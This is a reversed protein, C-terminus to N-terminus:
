MKENLIREKFKTLLEFLEKSINEMEKLKELNNNKNFSVEKIKEHFRDHVRELTGWEPVKKYKNNNDEYFKSFSCKNDYNFKYNENLSKKYIKIKTLLHELKTLELNIGTSVNNTNEMSININNIMNNLESIFLLLVSNTENLENNIEKTNEINEEMNQSLANISVEIEATAKQTKEALKRVEDAVVAFGRGHEGARAAEIAANLALLNTQESIDKILNTVSKIDNSSELLSESSEVTEDVRTLLSEMKEQVKTTDEVVKNIKEKNNENLKNTELLIDANLRLTNNSDIVNEIVSDSQLNNIKLAKRSEEFSRETEQKSREIEEMQYKSDKIQNEITEFLYNISKEIKSIEDNEKIELSKSFDKNEIAYTLINNLNEFRKTTKRLLIISMTILTLSLLSVFILMSILKILVNDKKETISEILNKEIKTELNKFLNIKETITEFWKKPNVNFENMKSLVIKRMKEVEISTSSNMIENLSDVFEKKALEKFSNLYIEQKYIKNLIKDRTKQTLKNEAFVGTIVAREIGANEKALLFNVYAQLDQKLIPDKSEKVIEKIVEFFNKHMNTYYNVANSKNILLNKINERKSNLENLSRIAIDLKNKISKNEIDYNRLFEKLSDISKDSDKKISELEINLSKGNSGIYGATAGREKQLNHVAEGIKVSLITQRELTKLYDEKKYNDILIMSSFILFAILPAFVLIYLKKNFSINM